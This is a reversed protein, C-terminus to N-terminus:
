NLIYIYELSCYLINDQQVALWDKELKKCNFEIKNIFAIHESCSMEISTSSLNTVLKGIM